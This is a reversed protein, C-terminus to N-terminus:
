RGMRKARASANEFFPLGTELWKGAPNWGGSVFGKWHSAECDGVGAIERRKV